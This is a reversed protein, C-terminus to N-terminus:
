FYNLKNNTRCSTTDLLQIEHSQYVLPNGSSLQCCKAIIFMNILNLASGTDNVSRWVCVCLTVCLAPSIVVDVSEVSVNGPLM